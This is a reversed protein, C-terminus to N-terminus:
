FRDPAYPEVDITTPRGGVMEAILKGTMAAGTLGLHGHGFAFYVSEHVPSRGIVPLSDPMSPRCGMWQTSGDTRIEPFLRQASRVLNAAREYNPPADPSALEVTGALRLGDAMPTIGFYLDGYLVTRSFQLGPDPLMVHYGREADLPLRSGLRAALRKGHAGAALVVVDLDHAGMDTRVKTPRDPGVEFDLVKERVIRGGHRVLDEALRQTLRLPDATHASEPMLVGYNVRGALEPELGAIQDADLFELAVGRQRLLEYKPLSKHYVKDSEYVDLRGNRVILSDADARDLLPQFVSLPDKNLPLLADAIQEVRKPSSAAMFRLLWPALRPLYRWRITLPGLPDLIMSPVQKVVGPMGVPVCYGAVFQGGSGRSCGEGPGRFDILTVDHGDLQLYLGCCVGVTGAGIITVHRQKSPQDQDM